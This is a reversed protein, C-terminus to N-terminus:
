KKLVVNLDRHLHAVGEERRAVRIPFWKNFKPNYNCVMYVSKELDVFKDLKDNEFEDESDSEELADLSKNEKISRFITNMLVSTEYNPIFAVDYYYDTSHNNYCYLSYIDNQLEAKIKFVLQKGINKRNDGNNGNDGYKNTLTLNNSFSNNNSKIYKLNNIYPKDFYRYQIYKIEYPLKSIEVLLNNFDYSMIPLGIISFSTGYSIQPIDKKFMDGFLSLKQKYNFTRSINKGKYYYVDEVTIFKNKTKGSFFVTGYIITGYSLESNFCLNIPYVRETYNNNEDLEFLYCINKNEKTTFWCICKKGDPIAILIDSNFVKKHVIKEYSLKFDNPLFSIIKESNFKNMSNNAGNINNAKRM